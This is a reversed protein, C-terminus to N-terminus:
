SIRSLNFPSPDDVSCDGFREKSKPTRLVNAVSGGASNSALTRSNRGWISRDLTSNNSLSGRLISISCISSLSSCTTSIFKPSPTKSCRGALLDDEIELEDEEEEPLRPRTVLSEDDVTDSESEEESGSSSAFLSPEEPGGRMRGFRGNGFCWLGMTCTNAELSSSTEESDAPSQRAGQYEGSCLTAKATSVDTIILV